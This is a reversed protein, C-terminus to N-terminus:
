TCIGKMRCILNEVYLAAHLREEDTNERRAFSLSKRSSLKSAFSNVRVAKRCLSNGQPTNLLRKTPAVNEKNPTSLNNQVELSSKVEGYIHGLSRVRRACKNCVRSSYRSPANPVQLGVSKIIKALIMGFCERRKSPLFLNESSGHQDKGATTGFQIKFDCSCIRCKESAACHIKLAIQLDTDEVLSIGEFERSAKQCFIWTSRDNTYKGCYDKRWIKIPYKWCNENRWLWQLTSCRPPTNSIWLPWDREWLKTGRSWRDSFSLEPLIWKWIVISIVSNQM